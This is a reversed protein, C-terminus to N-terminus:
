QSKWIYNKLFTFYHTIDNKDSSFEERFFGMYANWWEHEKSDKM